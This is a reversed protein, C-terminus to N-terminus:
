EVYLEGEESSYTASLNFPALVQRVVDKWDNGHVTISRTMQFNPGSWGALTVNHEALFTALANAINAGQDLRLALQGAGPSSPAVETAAHIEPTSSAVSPSSELVEDSGEARMSVDDPEQQSDTPETMPPPPVPRAGYARSVPECADAPVVELQLLAGAGVLASAVHMQAANPYHEALVSGVARHANDQAAATLISVSRPREGAVLEDLRARITSGVLEEARLRTTAPRVKHSCEGLAMPHNAADAGPALAVEADVVPSASPSPAAPRVPGGGPVFPQFETASPGELVEAAVVVAELGSVAQPPTSAPANAETPETSASETHADKPPGNHFILVAKGDVNMSISDPKGPIVLYPGEQNAPHDHVKGTAGPPLQIYTNQQDAFVIQPRADKAVIRYAFDYPEHKAAAASGSLVALALAIHRLKM